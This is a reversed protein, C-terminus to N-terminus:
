ALYSITITPKGDPGVAVHALAHSRSRNLAVACSALMDGPTLPGSEGDPLGDSAEVVRGIGVVHDPTLLGLYYTPAVEFIVNENSLIAEMYMTAIGNLAVGINVETGSRNEIIVDDEITTGPDPVQLLVYGDKGTDTAYQLSWRTHYAVSWIDGQTITDGSRTGLVVSLDDTWTLPLTSKPPLEGTMWVVSTCYRTHALRQFVVYMFGADGPNMISLGFEM